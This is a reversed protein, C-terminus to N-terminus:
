ISEDEPKEEGMYRKGYYYNTVYVLTQFAIMTLLADLFVYPGAWLTKFPGIGFGGPPVQGGYSSIGIMYFLVFQILPSEFEKLFEPHLATATYGAFVAGLMLFLTNDFRHEKPPGGSLSILYKSISLM